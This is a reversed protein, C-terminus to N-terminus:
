QVVVLSTAFGTQGFQDTVNLTVVFTGATAYTYQPNREASTNGDGFNWNYTLGQGQTQNIFQVTLPAPGTIADQTFAAVLLAPSPTWTPTNTPGSEKIFTWPGGQDCLQQFNLDLAVIQWTYTGGGPLEEVANITYNQRLELMDEFQTGDPRNIRILARPSEPGRWNFTITSNGPVTVSGDFPTVAEWTVCEVQDVPPPAQGPVRLVQGEVILNPNELCNGLALDSAFTSYQEAITALSDNIQVTYRLEWDERPQCEPTGTAGPPPTATAPDILGEIDAGLDLTATPTVTPTDTPPVTATPPEFTPPPRLTNTPSPTALPTSPPLTETPIAEATQTAGVQQMVQMGIYETIVDNENPGDDMALQIAIAGLAAAIFMLLL